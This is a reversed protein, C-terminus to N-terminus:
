DNSKKAKKSTPGGARAEALLEDLRSQSLTVMKEAAKLPILEGELKLLLSQATKMKDSSTTHIKTAEDLKKKLSKTETTLKDVVTKQAAVEDKKKAYTQPHLPPSSHTCFM